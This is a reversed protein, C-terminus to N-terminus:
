ELKLARITSGLLGAFLQVSGGQLVQGTTTGVRHGFHLKVIMRAPAKIYPDEYKCDPRM